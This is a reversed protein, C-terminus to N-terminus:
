WTLAKLPNKELLPLVVCCEPKHGLSKVIIHVAIALPLRPGLYILSDSCFFHFKCFM